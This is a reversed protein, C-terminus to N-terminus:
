NVSFDLVEQQFDVWEGHFDHIIDRLAQNYGEMYKVEETSYEKSPNVMEIENVIVVERLYDEFKKM